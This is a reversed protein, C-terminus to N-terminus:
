FSLCLVTIIKINDLKNEFKLTSKLSILSCRPSVFLNSGPIIIIIKIDMSM